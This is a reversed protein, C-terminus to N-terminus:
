IIPLATIISIEPMKFQSNIIKHSHVSFQYIKNVIKLLNNKGARKMYILTPHYLFLLFEAIM